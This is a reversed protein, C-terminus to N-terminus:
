HVDHARTRIVDTAIKQKQARRNRNKATAEAKEADGVCAEWGGARM